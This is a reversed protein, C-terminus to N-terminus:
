PYITLCKQYYTKLFTSGRKTGIPNFLKIPNIKFDEIKISHSKFESSLMKSMIYSMVLLLKLIPNYTNIPNIKFDEIKIIHSQFKSGLMKPMNYSMGLLLNLIKM